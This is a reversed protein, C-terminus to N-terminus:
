LNRKRKETMLLSRILYSLCITSRILPYLQWVQLTATKVELIEDVPVQNRGRDLLSVMLLCRCDLRKCEM